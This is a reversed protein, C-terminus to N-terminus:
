ATKPQLHTLWYAEALDAPNAFNGSDYRNGHADRMLPVYLDCVLRM